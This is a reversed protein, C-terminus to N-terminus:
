ELWTLRSICLSQYSKINSKCDSAPSFVSVQYEMMGNTLFRSQETLIYSPSLLNIDCVLQQIAQQHFDEGSCIQYSNPNICPLLPKDNCDPKSDFYESLANKGLWDSAPIQSIQNATDIHTFYTKLYQALQNTIKTQTFRKKAMTMADTVLSAGSTILALSLLVELLSFGQISSISKM